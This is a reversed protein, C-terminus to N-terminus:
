IWGPECRENYPDRYRKCQWWGTHLLSVKFSDYGSPTENELVPTTTYTLRIQQNYNYTIAPPTLSQTTCTIRNQRTYTLRYGGPFFQFEPLRSSKLTPVRKGPLMGQGQFRPVRQQILLFPCVSSMLSSGNQSGEPLWVHCDFIGGKYAIKGALFEM